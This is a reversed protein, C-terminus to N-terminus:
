IRRIFSLRHDTKPNLLILGKPSLRLLSPIFAQFVLLSTFATYPSRYRGLTGSSGDDSGYIANIMLDAKGESFSSVCFFATHAWATRSDIKSTLYRDVFISLSTISDHFFAISTVDYINTAKYFKNWSIINFVKEKILVTQPLVPLVLLVLLVPLVPLFTSIRGSIFLQAIIILLKFIVHNAKIILPGTNKSM